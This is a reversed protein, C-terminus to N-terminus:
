LNKAEEDEEMPAAAPLAPSQPTQLETEVPAQDKKAQDLLAAAHEAAKRELEGRGRKFNNAADAEREREDLAAVAANDTTISPGSTIALAGEATKRQKNAAIVAAPEPSVAQVAGALAGLKERLTANVVAVAQRAENELANWQTQLDEPIGDPKALIELKCETSAVAQNPTKIHGEKVGLRQIETELQIIEMSKALAKEKTSKLKAEDKLQQDALQKAQHVAAAHKGLAAKLSDPKGANEAKAQELAQQAEDFPLDAAKLADVAAQLKAIDAKPKTKADGDGQPRAALERELQAVRNELQKERNPGQQRPPPARQTGPTLKYKAGCVRCSQPNGISAKHIAVEELITGRCGTNPYCPCKLLARQPKRPRSFGAPTVRANSGSMAEDHAQASHYAALLQESGALRLLTRAISRKARARRHWAPEKTRKNTPITYHLHAPLACRYYVLYYARDQSPRTHPEAM